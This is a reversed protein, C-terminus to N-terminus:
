AFEGRGRGLRVLIAAANPKIRVRTAARPALADSRERGVVYGFM